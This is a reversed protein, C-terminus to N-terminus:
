FQVPTGAIRGCFQNWATNFYSGVMGTQDDIQASTEGRSTVGAEFRKFDSVGGYANRGSRMAVDLDQGTGSRGSSSAWGIKEPGGVDVALVLM